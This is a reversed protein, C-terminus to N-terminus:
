EKRADEAALCLEATRRASISRELPFDAPDDACKMSADLHIKTHGALVCDRVLSRGKSMASEVPEQQWPSPGLHDGGLILRERQLGSQDAIDRLHDRFDSPTMGTYGGEQNVQKCTSEILLPSGDQVARQVCAELVFSNASCISYVGLPSGRKQCAVIEPLIAKGTQRDM